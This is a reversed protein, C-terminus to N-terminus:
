LVHVSDLRAELSEELVFPVLIHAADVKQKRTDRVTEVVGCLGELVVELNNTRLDDCALLIACWLVSECVCVGEDLREDSDVFLVRLQEACAERIVCEELRCEVLGEGIHHVLWSALPCHRTKESQKDIM